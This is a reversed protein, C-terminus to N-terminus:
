RLGLDSELSSVKSRLQQLKHQKELMAPNDQLNMNAMDKEIAAIENEIQQNGKAKNKLEALLANLSKNLAAYQQQQSQLDGKVATKEQEISAYVERFLQNTKQEDLLIKEKDDVRQAYVGQTNCGFKTAFGADANRPDCQEATVACGTLATTAGLLVLSRILM